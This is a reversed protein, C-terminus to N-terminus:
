GGVAMHVCGGEQTSESGEVSGARKNREQQGSEAAASGRCGDM